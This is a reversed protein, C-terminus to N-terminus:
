FKMFSETEYFYYFGAKPSLLVESEFDEAFDNFYM